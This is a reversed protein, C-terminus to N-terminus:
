KNIVYRVPINKYRSPLKVGEPLKERLNVELHCSSLDFNSRFKLSATGDQHKAMRSYSGAGRPPVIAISLIYHRHQYFEACFEIPIDMVANLVSPPGALGLMIGEQFKFVIGNRKFHTL